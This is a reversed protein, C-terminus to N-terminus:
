ALTLHKLRFIGDNPITLNENIITTQGYRVGRGERSSHVYFVTDDIKQIVFLIHHGNKQRILDGTQIQDPTIPKSLPASTLMNASTKRVDLHLNFYFNLLHVALGSCDIGLHAKKLTNYDSSISKIEQWTGKGVFVNDKPLRSTNIFYPLDIYHEIEQLLLDLKTGVM